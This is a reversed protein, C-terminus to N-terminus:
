CKFLKYCIFSRQNRDFHGFAKPHNTTIVLLICNHFERSYDFIFTFIINDFVFIIGIIAYIRNAM